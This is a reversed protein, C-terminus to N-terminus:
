ATLSPAADRAARRLSIRVGDRGLLVAGILLVPVVEVAQLALGAAVARAVPVGAPALGLVVAGQVVGVNGPTLRFVGGLNSLLLALGSAAPSAHAHAAAISWHYTAWQLAWAATDFALPALLGVFRYGSAPRVDHARVWPLWRLAALAAVLLAAAAAVLRWGRLAGIVASGTMIGAFGVVFLGLAAAEVIRSAAIARAAAGAPVGDRTVVHLRAAEGSMAVGISGVAAGAFTAAQAARTRVPAHPRLLLEWARAKCALSLLNAAAAAALLRRNASALGAWTDAWPFRLLYRAGVVLVVLGVTWWLSRKM